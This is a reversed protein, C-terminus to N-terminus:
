KGKIPQGQADVTQGAVVYRGGEPAEDLRREEAQAAAEALARSAANQADAAATPKEAM